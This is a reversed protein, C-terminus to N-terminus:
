ARAGQGAPAAPKRGVLLVNAFSTGECMSQCHVHLGARELLAQWASAERTAFRPWGGRMLTILADNLLTWRARMRQAADAVRLLLVGGPELSAVCRAIVAEQEAHDLYHLVDFITIADVAGHEVQRIDAQEFHYRDALGTQSIAVCAASIADGRLDVAHVRVGTPAPPWDTPWSIRAADVEATALMLALVGQGCGLDLLRKRDALLGQALVAAFIPDGSLKGRCFYYATRGAPRYRESCRQVLQRFAHTRSPRATGAAVSAPPEQGVESAQSASGLRGSM